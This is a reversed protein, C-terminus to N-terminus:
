HNLSKLYAAKGGHTKGLKELASDFRSGYQAARKPRFAYEHDLGIEEAMIRLIYKKHGNKIKESAPMNMATVIVQSDLFPTLATFGLASCIKTDRILDREYMLNLGRWCEEHMNGYNESNHDETNNYGTRNDETNSNTSRLSKEHREYGAFIEESGLGTFLVTIGNQMALEAGCIVVAGVGVTIPNTTTGLISITKEIIGTAEKTTATHLIIKWNYHKAIKEAEITDEPTKTGVDQFGATFCTFPINNEHLVVAILTSDVGGSFLVGIKKNEKIAYQARSLVAQTFANKWITKQKELEDLQEVSEEPLQKDLQKELKNEAPWNKQENKHGSTKIKTKEKLACIRSEWEKQTILASDHTFLEEVYKDM